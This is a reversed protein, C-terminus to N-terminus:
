LIIRWECPPIRGSTEYVSSFEMERLTKENIRLVDKGRTMMFEYVSRVESALIM